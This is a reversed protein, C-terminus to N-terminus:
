VMSDWFSAEKGNLVRDLEAKVSEFVDKKTNWFETLDEHKVSQDKLSGVLEIATSRLFRQTEPCDMGITLPALAQLLKVRASELKAEDPKQQKAIVVFAQEFVSLFETLLKRISDIEGGYKNDTPAEDKRKGALADGFRKFINGMTPPAPPNPPATKSSGSNGGLGRRRDVEAQVEEPTINNVQM